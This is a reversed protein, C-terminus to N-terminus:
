SAPTTTSGIVVVQLESTGVTADATFRLEEAAAGALAWGEPNILIIEGGPLIHLGDGAVTAGGTGIPGEAWIGVNAVSISHANTAAARIGIAYLVELDIAVGDTNLGTFGEVESATPTVPATVEGAQVDLDRVASAAFKLLGAYITDAGPISFQRNALGIRFSGSRTPYAPTIAAGLATTIATRLDM